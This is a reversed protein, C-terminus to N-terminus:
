LQGGVSVHIEWQTLLVDCSIAKSVVIDISGHPM